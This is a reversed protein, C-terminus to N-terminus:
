KPELESPPAGGSYDFNGENSYPHRVPSRSSSVYSLSASASGANPNMGALQMINEIEKVVESMTPRDNGSEEVCQIALDVYKEFGGLTTGLGIAPDLLEHLGYFDKTKDMVVRVERVIYRGRELPKKATILELLLVGFSYVDSKETLQQTMYYEPDLYGMTGKVQTTVYGKGDVGLPKSLGFDSVKANLHCDLLINSSKIDRHVIPPNALEHLYALGRSAGLAVRLRRKWGLRVGSKGSLSEKLTGNPVYEYVLMQEGQDVCFGVLTVLNKHHVRSLLEIETNFELGGQMSGQQARKVAVLQGDNLIGRYVKGYSGNGIDNAESFDNTCKRLEEFSFMRPVKLLPISGSSKTRDLSAISQSKKEVKRTKRWHRIAFVVFGTLLFALAAGGVSAGITVPLHNSKVSSAVVHAAAYDQAIFYYPGFMSPPNFTQNSFFSGLTSVDIENFRDKGGPFVQVSIELNSDSDVFPNQLSVSDVLLREPLSSQLADDLTQYITDNGLNSFSYARFCLTGTYPYACHCTPSLSENSPCPIPICNQPTSYPPASQESTKCYQLNTGGRNCIPNGVLMIQKTFGAGGLTIQTIDNDRLDILNLSSSYDTGIDLTGNFRNGRLKATQLPPFSFLAAPLQGEIQLSELFLSTLSPLTSFWRPVDSVDFSNNSMDVFSLANLGSLSPLPGTLQNNALHLEALQTLNNINSPVPGSLSNSDLRLIELQSALGLTPPISGMLNNNDFLVHILRMDSHFLQSPIAGSLQNAGFHFHKCHTLLDLGPKNGDSVPITGTLKNDALDLWYLKSLNGLTEPITGTFSNSNLALFVLRPLNGIERPIEGSFSCDVLVLNILKSLSGISAPIGGTLGKNYSLDLARLENLSQIDGSLTGILGLSSLTIAIVHSNNCSIGVWNDGCPDSGIWNSPPNEWSSALSILADADQPDTEASVVLVQRLLVLLFVWCGPNMLRMSWNICENLPLLDM